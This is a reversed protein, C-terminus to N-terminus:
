CTQNTCRSKSLTHIHRPKGVHEDIAKRKGQHIHQLHQSSPLSSHGHMCTAQIPFCLIHVTHYSDLRETMITTRAIIRLKFLQFLLHSRRRLHRWRICSFDIFQIRFTWITCNLIVFLSNRNVRSTHTLMIASAYFITCLITTLSCHNICNPILHLYKKSKHQGACTFPCSDTLVIKPGFSISLFRLSTHKPICTCDVYRRNFQRYMSYCTDDVCM